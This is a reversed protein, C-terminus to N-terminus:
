HNEHKVDGDNLGPPVTFPSVKVKREKNGESALLADLGCSLVELMPISTQQHGAKTLTTVANATVKEMRDM